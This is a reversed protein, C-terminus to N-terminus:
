WLNVVPDINGTEESGAVGYAISVGEIYQGKAGACIRDLEKLFPEADAATGDLIVAFEDGGIRYIRDTVYFAKRMCDAAINILEDGAEHGYTDNALKLGNLDLMVASLNQEPQIGTM